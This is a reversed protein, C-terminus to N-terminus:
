IRSGNVTGGINNSNTVYNIGDISIGYLPHNKGSGAGGSISGSNNLTIPVRTYLATGGSVVAEYSISVSGSGGNAGSSTSVRDQFGGGAGGNGGGAGGSGSATDYGGSDGRGGNGGPGSGGGGGFGPAGGGGGSGGGTSAIVKDNLSISSGASANGGNGGNPRDDGLSAGAGGQGGTGFSGTIKDNYNVNLSGSKKGGGGGGGGGGGNLKETGGGGGGGAGIVTYSIFDVGNPVYFNGNLTVTVPGGTNNTGGVITGNNIINITSYNNYGTGVNLAPNAYNSSSITSNNTLQIVFPINTATLSVGCMTQAYTNANSYINYTNVKSNITLPIFIGYGRGYFDSVKIRQGTIPLPYQYNPDVSYYYKVKDGYYDHIDVLNIDTYNNYLYFADAINKLSINAPFLPLTQTNITSM